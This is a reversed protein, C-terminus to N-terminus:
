FLSLLKDFPWSVVDWLGGIVWSGGDYIADAVLDLMAQESVAEVPAEEGGFMSPMAGPTDGGAMMLGVGGLGGAALGYKIAMKIFPRMHEKNM